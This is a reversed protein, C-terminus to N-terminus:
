PRSLLRLVSVHGNQAAWLRPTHGFLDLCDADIGNASLLLKVVAEHGNQSAVSLPTLYHEDRWNVNVGRELLLRVVSAHGREAAWLLPTRRYELDLRDVDVNVRELLLEVVVELGFYSAVMIPDDFQPIPWTQDDKYWYMDFWAQFRHGQADCIKAASQVLEKTARHQAKQFHAAWFESAYSFLNREGTSPTSSPSDGPEDLFSLMLYTVCVRALVLESEAPDISHKWRSSPAENQSTVAENAILFEKATQHILYVKHNEVSVFFGCLNRLSSEFRTQDELDLELDDFDKHHDEISLAINMEKLTLPRPAAVIIHLLKQVRRKDRERVKSLISEYAEDVTAPLTGIIQKLKTKTLSIEKRIVEIILKLWLYTRHDMNLLEHELIEREPDVLGLDRGLKAVESKIVLNIERSISSSEREGHLRITTPYSRILDAFQREIDLYPRSTILFRLQSRKSASTEYFVKLADIFQNRGTETCEDIADLICVIKGALPDAAAALFAKWLTQFSQPLKNGNNGYDPMAHKVLGPTRSFLQHLLASLAITIDKQKDNDDRFFFYCTTLSEINFDNDILSKSLVSKGCGPDASM